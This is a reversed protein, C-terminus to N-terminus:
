KCWNIKTESEVMFERIKYQDRFFTSNIFFQIVRFLEKPLDVDKFTQLFQRENKICYLGEHKGRSPRIAKTKLLYSNIFHKKRGNVENKTILFYGKVYFYQINNISYNEARDVNLAPKKKYSVDESICGTRIVDKMDIFYDGDVLLHKTDTYVGLLMETIKEDSYDLISASHGYEKYRLGFNMPNKRVARLTKESALNVYDM